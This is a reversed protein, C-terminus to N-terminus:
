GHLTSDPDRDDHLNFGRHNAHAGVESSTLLYVFEVEDIEMYGIQEGHNCALTATQEEPDVQWVSADEGQELSFFDGEKLSETSVHTSM